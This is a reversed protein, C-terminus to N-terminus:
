PAPARPPPPPPAPPRGGGGGGGGGGREWNKMFSASLGSYIALVPNKQM